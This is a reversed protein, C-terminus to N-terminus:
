YRDLIHGTIECIQYPYDSNIGFMASTLQSINIEKEYDTCYTIKGNDSKIIVNNRKILNDTIKVAPFSLKSITIAAFLDVIRAMTGKLSGKNGVIVTEEGNTYGSPPILSFCSNDTKTVKELWVFDDFTREIYYDLNNVYEKYLSYAKKASIKNATPEGLYDYSVTAFGMKEYFSHSFPYLSIFPVGEMKELVDVLLKKALGKNRHEKSTGLGVLFPLSITNKAYKLYKEIIFLQCALKNNYEIFHCNNIGLKQRFFLERMALSDEPFCESYLDFVDKSKIM